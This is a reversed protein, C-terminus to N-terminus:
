DQGALDHLRSGAGVAGGPSPGEPLLRSGVAVLGTATVVLPNRFWGTLGAVFGGISGEGDLKRLRRKLRQRFSEDELAERLLDEEALANFLEQDDLAMEHLRRQLAATSAGM